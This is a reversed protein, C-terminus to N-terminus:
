IKEEQVLPRYTMRDDVDFGVMKKQMALPIKDIKYDMNFAYVVRYTDQIHAPAEHLYISPFIIFDGKKPYFAIPRHFQTRMGNFTFSNTVESKKKRQGGPLRSLFTEKRRKYDKIGM